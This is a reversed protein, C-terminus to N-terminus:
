YTNPKLLHIKIFEIFNVRSNSKQLLVGNKIRYQKNNANM